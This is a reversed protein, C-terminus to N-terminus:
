AKNKLLEINLLTSICRNYPADKGLSECGRIVVGCIEEVELQKGKERDVLMSPKISDFTSILQLMDDIDNNTLDVDNAKAALAAENMAGRILARLDSRRTAEGTEIELLACLPNVGNNIILKRWLEKYIDKSVETPISAENFREALQEIQILCTSELTQHNPWLGLIVQAPGVAEVVGPKIIHAGIRRAIGGLILQEPMAAKLQKENDVGNQLSLIFPPKDVNTQQLWPKLLKALDCTQMAKLCIIIVDVQDPTTTQLWNDLDLANVTKDFQLELHKVILGKECMAQLHPGRSILTVQEGANILRAAYYCGIGGAGIVTFRM